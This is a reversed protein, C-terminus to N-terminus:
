ALTAVILGDPQHPPNPDQHLIRWHPSLIDLCEAFIAEGHTGIIWNRIQGAQGSEVVHSLLTAEGGQVDLKAIDFPAPEAALLAALDRAPVRHRTGKAVPADEIVVHSSFDSDSVEVVGDSVHAAAEILTMRGPSIGNLALNERIASIHAPLFEFVTAEAEARLKLLLLTYYGIGGGIDCFRLDPRDCSDILRLFWDEEVPEHLNRNGDSLYRSVQFDLLHHRFVELGNGFLYTENEAITQTM